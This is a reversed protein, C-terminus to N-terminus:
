LTSTHMSLAYLTNAHLKMNVVASKRNVMLDCRIMSKISRHAVERDVVNQVPSMQLSVM